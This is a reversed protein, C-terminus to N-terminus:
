RGDEAQLTGGSVRVSRAPGMAEVADPEASSLLTQGMARVAEALWTRRAPDLESFVDDLMLIPGDGLSDSLLDYEAFKLALAATRQDGQSAYVRADLMAGEGGAALRVSVDDRQPGVLSMGRELERSRVAELGTRLADRIEQETVEGPVALARECLSEGLWESSYGLDIRGSGAIEEYRKRVFPLLLRLAELRAAAL